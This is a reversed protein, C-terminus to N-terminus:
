QENKSIVTLHHPYIKLDIPLDPGEEGDVDSGHNYEDLAKISVNKSKFYNVNDSEKIDEFVLSSGMNMLESINLRKIALVHFVGDGIVKEPLVSKLGGLSDILAIIIVSVDGEWEGDDTKIEVSFVDDKLTEKGIAIGYAIAGLKSKEESDVEHIAKAARGIGLINTFYRENAIGVDIKKERGSTLLEIAKNPNGPINLAKSLDNVTGMPVIGLKPPNEFSALGNVTENVTGDGGLAVVLDFKEEGAKKAFKTADGEGSTHKVTVNEYREKLSERIEKEYEGAEEKGSSPNIIVMASKGM